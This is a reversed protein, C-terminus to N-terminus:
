HLAVTQRLGRVGSQWTTGDIFDVRVVRCAADADLAAPYSGADIASGIAVGTSFLGKEHVTQTQGAYDFTLVVSTADVPAM